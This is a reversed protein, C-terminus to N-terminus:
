QNSRLVLMEIIPHEPLSQTLTGPHGSTSLSSQTQGLSHAGIGFLASPRPRANAAASRQVAPTPTLRRPSTVGMTRELKRFASQAPARLIRAELFWNTMHYRFYLAHNVLCRFLIYSNKQHILSQKFCCITVGSCHLMSCHQEGQGASAPIIRVEPKSQVTSASALVLLAGAPRGELAIALLLQLCM